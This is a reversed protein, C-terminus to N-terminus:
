YGPLREGRLAARVLVLLRMEENSRGDDVDARNDLYTEVECLTQEMLKFHRHERQRQDHLAQQEREYADVM